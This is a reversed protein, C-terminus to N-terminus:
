DHYLFVETQQYYRKLEVTGWVNFLAPKSVKHCVSLITLEPDSKSHRATQMLECNSNETWSNWEKIPATAIIHLRPFRM